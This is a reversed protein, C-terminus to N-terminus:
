NNNIDPKKTTTICKKLHMAYFRTKNDDRRWKGGQIQSQKEGLQTRNGEWVTYETGISVLRDILICLLSTQCVHTKLKRVLTSSKLLVYFGLHDDIVWM